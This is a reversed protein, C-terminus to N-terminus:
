TGSNDFLNIAFQLYLLREMNTRQVGYMFYTYLLFKCLVGVTILSFYVHIYFVIEIVEM